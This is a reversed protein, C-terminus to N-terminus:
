PKSLLKEDGKTRNDNRAAIREYIDLYRNAISQAHFRAANLQGKHILNRRYDQNQLVWLIGDRISSVDTPDVFHAGAGAVEPMSSRNSTVVARGVSQAEVIPMGFGEYLSAFVLIDCLEYQHFLDERSLGVFNHYRIGASHLCQRQDATLEGVVSLACDVGRLAAAVRHLNKNPSTGVQLLRPPSSLHEKPRFRFVDSVAVPIVVVKEPACGTMRLIDDRSAESITTIIAAHWAPWIFWLQRLLWAALGRRSAVDGCDLITLVTRARSLLLCAFNVDGTVHNVQGEHLKADLMIALRRFVGNSLFPAVRLRSAIVGSLRDRVDEFIFEVSYSSIRRKRQFFTVQIIPESENM